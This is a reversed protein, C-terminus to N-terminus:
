KVRLVERDVTGFYILNSASTTRTMDVAGGDLTYKGGPIDYIMTMSLPWSNMQFARSAQAHRRPTFSANMVGPFGTSFAYMSLKLPRNLSSHRFSCRNMVSSCPRSVTSSRRTSYLVARGCLESSYMIGSSNM